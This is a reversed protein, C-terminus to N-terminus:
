PILSLGRGEGVDSEPLITHSRLDVRRERGRMTNARPVRRSVGPPERRQPAGMAKPYNVWLLTGDRAANLMGGPVLLALEVANTRPGWEGAAPVLFQMGILLVATLALLM